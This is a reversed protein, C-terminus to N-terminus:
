PMLRAGIATNLDLMSRRYRVVADRYLRASNADDELHDLYEGITMEGSLFERTARKRADQSQGLVSTEVLELAQRAAVFERYTQRVEASVRRELATLETQTQTRNIHAKAINGQNRNFLPMPVTLGLGWSRGSQAQFPRNDQYSYPDYFLYVDEVRNAKALRIESDARRIGLRAAALDPRMAKADRVLDALPPLPPHPMRLRGRAQLGAIEQEPLGLLLALAEQADAIADRADDLSARSTGLEVALRDDELPTPKKPGAGRRVKDLVAKERGVLTELAELSIRAAQLDVFARYINGIQRRAVDQFQAELVRKAVCAVAVRAQRKRSVDMPVTINVDYQTPGGPRRSSFSGYPIFQADGYILPNNRLGATLIDADAQPLEYRIALLDLNAERMREIADDLTLGSAPGEDNVLKAVDGAPQEEEGRRLPEVGPLPDPLPPPGVANSQKFGRTGPRAVRGPGRRRGGIIGSDLTTAPPQLAGPSSPLAPVLSGPMAGLAPREFIRGPTTGVDQASAGPTSVRAVLLIAVCAASLHVPPMRRM